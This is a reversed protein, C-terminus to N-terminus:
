PTSLSCEKQLSRPLIAGQRRWSRSAGTSRPEHGEAREGSAVTYRKSGEESGMQRQNEPNM